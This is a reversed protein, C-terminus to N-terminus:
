PEIGACQSCPLRLGVRLQLCYPDIMVAMEHGCDFRLVVLHSFYGSDHVIRTTKLLTMPKVAIM